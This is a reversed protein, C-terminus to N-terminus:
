PAGQLSTLYTLLGTLEEERLRGEFVPMVPEYGTVLKAEPNLISERIYAEDAIVAYGSRLDVTRGFIGDLSPGRGAGDPRHCNDCKLETFLRQGVALPTEGPEVGSLWRQYARPALVVVRGRMQAFGAGCYETCQIVSEGPERATFSVESVRGPRVPENVGLSLLSVRHRVDDTELRLRVPLGAPLHLTNLEKRGEAHEVMWLWQTAIVRIEIEDGRATTPPEDEEPTQPPGRRQLERIHAVIAWRDAPPLRDAFDEM